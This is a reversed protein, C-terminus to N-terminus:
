ANCCLMYAYLVSMPRSFEMATQFEVVWKACFNM